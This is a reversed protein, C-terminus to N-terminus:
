VSVGKEPSGHNIMAFSTSTMTARIANTVYDQPEVITRVEAANYDQPGMVSLLRIPRTYTSMNTDRIQPQM